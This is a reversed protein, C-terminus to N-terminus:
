QRQYQQRYGSLSCDTERKFYRCLYSPDDFHLEIAIENVSLTTHTLLAKIKLIVQRNILTKPVDNFYQKTLQSLYFPTINLRNAYYAVDRHQHSHKIVLEWFQWCLHEKRSFEKKSLSYHPPILETIAFFLNQLQGRLMLKRHETYNKDIYKLQEVWNNIANLHATSPRCIPNEHLFTFLSNSLAYAIESAFSKKLFCYFIRFNASKRQLTVMRDDGVILIDNAKITKTQFDINIVARGDLCIIVVVYSLALPYGLENHMDSEGIVAYESPINLKLLSQSFM